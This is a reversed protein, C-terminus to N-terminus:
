GSNLRDGMDLESVEIRIPDPAFRISHLRKEPRTPLYVHHM